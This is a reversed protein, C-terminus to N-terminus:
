ALADQDEAAIVGGRSRSYNETVLSNRINLTAGKDIDIIAQDHSNKQVKSNILEVKLSPSQGPNEAPNLNIIQGTNSTFTANNLSFM